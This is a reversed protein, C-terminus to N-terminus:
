DQDSKGSFIGKLAGFLGKAAPVTKPTEEKVATRGDVPQVVPISRSQQVDRPAGNGYRERYLRLREEMSVSYPDALRPGGGPRSVTRGAPKPVGGKKKPHRASVPPSKPLKQTGADRTKAPAPADRRYEAAKRGRKRKSAPQSEPAPKPDNLSFGGTIAAIDAQIARANRGDYQGGRDRLDSEGRNNQQRDNRRDPMAPRTEAKRPAMMKEDAPIASLRFGLMREINEIGVAYRDCAFNLIHAREFSTDLCALRALYPEGELPIDWNVLVRAWSGPLGNAGEDTLVLIDFRGAVVSDFVARKRPLNGLIYEVSLGEAKLQRAVSEATDRTNCFVAVPKVQSVSGQGSYLRMKDEASVMWTTSPTSKVREGDAELSLEEASGALDRVIARHSPGPESSFAVIRRGPRASGLARRLMVVSAADAMADLDSLAILGFMRADLIGSASQSAVADMSGILVSSDADLSERGITSVVVGISGIISDGAGKLSAVDRDGPAIVLVRLAPEAVLRGALAAMLLAHRTPGPKARALVSGSVLHSALRGAPKVVGPSITELASQIRGDMQVNDNDM